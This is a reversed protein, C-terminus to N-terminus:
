KQDWKLFYTSIFDNFNKYKTIKKIMMRITSRVSEAFSLKYKISM